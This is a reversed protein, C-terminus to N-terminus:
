AKNLRYQKPTHIVKPSFFICSINYFIRVTPTVKMWQLLCACLCLSSLEQKEIASRRMLGILLIDHVYLM